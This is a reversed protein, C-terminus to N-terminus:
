VKESKFLRRLAEEFVARESTYKKQFVLLRLKENLDHEIHVTKKADPLKVPETAAPEKDQLLDDMSKPAPTATVKKKAKSTFKEAM